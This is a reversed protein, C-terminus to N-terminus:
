FFLLHGGRAFMYFKAAQGPKPVDGGAKILHKGSKNGQTLEGDGRM